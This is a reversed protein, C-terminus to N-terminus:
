SNLVKKSLSDYNQAMYCLGKVLIDIVRDTSEPTPAEAEEYEELEPIEIGVERLMESWYLMM